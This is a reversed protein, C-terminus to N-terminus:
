ENNTEKRTITIETRPNQKDVHVRSGDMTAVISYNDDKLVGYKILIDLTAEQLNVLDCRRRDKRYYVMQVNVSEDIPEEDWNIYVGCATEFAKYDASQSIFPRGTRRNILIRQSNKKPVPNLPITFEAVGNNRWNNTWSKTFSDEM